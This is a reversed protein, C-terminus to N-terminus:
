HVFIRNRMQESDGMSWTPVLEGRICTFYLRGFSRLGEKPLKSKFYRRDKGFALNAFYHCEIFCSPFKEELIRCEIVHFLIRLM